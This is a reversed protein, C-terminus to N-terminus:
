QDGEAKKDHHGCGGKGGQQAEGGHHGCGGKGEQQANNAHHNCGGKAIEAQFKADTLANLLDDTTTKQEDFAVTVVKKELNVKVESVAENAKLTKEVRKACNGCHMNTVKFNVNGAMMSGVLMSAFMMLVIKRM